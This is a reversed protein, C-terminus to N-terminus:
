SRGDRACVHCCSSVSQAVVIVSQMCLVSMCCAGQDVGDTLSSKVIRKLEADIDPCCACGNLEAVAGDVSAPARRLSKESALFSADVNITALDHAVAAVRLNGRELMIREMLTTKGSGLFGTVVVIPLPRPAAVDFLLKEHHACMNCRM